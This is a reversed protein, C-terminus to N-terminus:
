QPEVRTETFTPQAIKNLTNLNEFYVTHPIIDHKMHKEGICVDVQISTRNNELQWSHFFNSLQM